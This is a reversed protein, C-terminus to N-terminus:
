RVVHFKRGNKKMGKLLLGPIDAKKSNSFKYSIIYNMYISICCTFLKNHFLTNEVGKGPVQTINEIKLKKLLYDFELGSNELHTIYDFNMECPTCLSTQTRWHNNMLSDGKNSAVYEIIQDFFSDRILNKVFVFFNKVMGVFARFSSNMGEPIEDSEFISIGPYFPIQFKLSQKIKEWIKADSLPRLHGNKMLSGNKFRFTRAKDHWASELRFKEQYFAFSNRLIKQFITLLSAM